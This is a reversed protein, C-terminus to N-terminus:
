EGATSITMKFGDPDILDFARGGWPMDEPESALTGGRAKINAAVTDIDQSTQLHLRHGVGKDRDWGKAGDDQGLFLTTAGAMLSVGMVKDEHKWEEGVVFGVVDRYWQISKELDDVTLSPVVARLRLTEPESRSRRDPATDTDSSM